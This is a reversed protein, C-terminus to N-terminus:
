LKDSEIYGDTPRNTEYYGPPIKTNDSIKESFTIKLCNDYIRIIQKAFADRFDEAAMACSFVLSVTVAATVAFKKVAAIRRKGTAASIGKNGAGFRETMMKRMNKVFDPSFTHLKAIEEDSPFGELEEMAHLMCADHPLDRLTDYKHAM